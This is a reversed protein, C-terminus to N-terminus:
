ASAPARRKRVSKAAPAARGGDLNLIKLRSPHKFGKGVDRWQDNGDPFYFLQREGLGLLSEHSARENLRWPHIVEASAKTKSGRRLAFTTDISVRAQAGDLRTSAHLTSFDILLLEGNKPQYAIKKYRKAIEDGDHYSPLPGLWEEQFNGPPDYLSLHNRAADGFLPIHITVSEASEGAWSDSHIAETEHRRNRNREEPEGTKIRVNMPIHWSSILDGIHLSDVLEAFTRVLNNYELVSYRKPVVLGNPTINGIRDWHSIFESLLQNEDLITRRDPLSRCLYLKVALLFSEWAPKPIDYVSILRSPRRCSFRSSLRDFAEIRSALSM